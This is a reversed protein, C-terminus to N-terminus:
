CSLAYRLDDVPVRLLGESDTLVEKVRELRQIQSKLMAIRMDINEALTPNKHERAQSNWQGHSQNLGSADNSRNFNQM